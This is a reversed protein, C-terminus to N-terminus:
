LLSPALSSEDHLLPHDSALTTQTRLKFRMSVLERLLGGLAALRSVKEVTPHSQQARQVEKMERKIRKEDVELKTSLEFM